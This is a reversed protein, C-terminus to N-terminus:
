RGAARARAAPGVTRELVAELRARSAADIEPRPSAAPRSPAEFLAVFAAVAIGVGLVLTLWRKV